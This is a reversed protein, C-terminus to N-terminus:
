KQVAVSPLINKRFGFLLKAQHFGVLRHSKNLAPNFICSLVLSYIYIYLMCIIYTYIYPLIKIGTIEIGREKRGKKPKKCTSLILFQLLPEWTPSSVGSVERRNRPNTISQGLPM